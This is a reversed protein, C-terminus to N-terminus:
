LLVALEERADWVARQAVLLSGLLYSLVPCVLHLVGGTEERMCHLTNASTTRVQQDPSPLPMELAAAEPAMLCGM